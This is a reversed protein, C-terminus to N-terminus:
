LSETDTNKANRPSTATRAAGGGSTAEATAAGAEVDIFELDKAKDENMM